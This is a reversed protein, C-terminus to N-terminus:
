LLFHQCHLIVFVPPFHITKVRIFGRQTFVCSVFFHLDSCFRSFQLVRSASAYDLGWLFPILSGFAAEVVCAPKGQMLAHAISSTEAMCLDVEDPQDPESGSSDSELIM